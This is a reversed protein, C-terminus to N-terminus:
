LKLFHLPKLRFDPDQDPVRDPVPVPDPVPDSVPFPDLIHKFDDRIWLVAKYLLPKASM